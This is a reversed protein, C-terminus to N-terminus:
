EKDEQLFIHINKTLSNLDKYLESFSDRIKEIEVQKAPNKLAPKTLVHPKHVVELLSERTVGNENAIDQLYYYVTHRSLSYMEAIELITKGDSHHEMFHNLMQRVRESQQRAM